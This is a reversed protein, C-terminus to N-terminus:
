HNHEEKKVPFLLSAVVSIVLIGLIILLSYWNKYGIMELGEHWAISVIMKLGIFMLLFSLGTKLYHFLHMVNSLFFFMSRLGMIAFINSFFVLYPDKTVAFVAPVSDVAFLLDTFEIVLIVLFLPTIFVKGMRRVFFRNAVYRPFVSFYRSAFRVVPHKETDIEEEEKETLMKYGSFILIAGFIYLIFEFRHILASGVFIFIFRMVVAGLVGWLLVKKYYKERVKFSAFILIIVFINDVSLSYELVWGTLFELAILSRYSQVSKEYDNADLIVDKRSDKDVYENVTKQLSNFDKISHMQEGYKYLLFSFILAMIIWVVSWTAAEQFSVSKNKRSLVGLDLILMLSIFALFGAFFVFENFNM